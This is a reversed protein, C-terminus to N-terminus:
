DEFQNEQELLREFLALKWSMTSRPSNRSPLLDDQSRAGLDLRELM